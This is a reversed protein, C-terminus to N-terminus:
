KCCLPDVFSKPNTRDNTHLVIAFPPDRPEFLLEGVEAHHDFREKGLVLLEARRDVPEASVVLIKAPLVLIKAPLVLFEAFTQALVRRVRAIRRGAVARGLALGARPLQRRPLSTTALRTVLARSTL